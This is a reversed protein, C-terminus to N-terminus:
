TNRTLYVLTNKSTGKIEERREKEEEEVTIILTNFDVKEFTCNPPIREINIIIPVLGQEVKIKHFFHLILDDSLIDEVLIIEYYGCTDNENRYSVILRDGGEVHTGPDVIISKM